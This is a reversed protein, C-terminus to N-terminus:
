KMSKLAAAHIADYIKVLGAAYTDASNVNPNQFTGAFAATVDRAVAAAKIKHDANTEFSM